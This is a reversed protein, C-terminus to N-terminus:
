GFTAGGLNNIPSVSFLTQGDRNVLKVLEANIDTAAKL